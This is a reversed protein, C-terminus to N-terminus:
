VQCAKPRSTIMPVRFLSLSNLSYGDLVANMNKRGM